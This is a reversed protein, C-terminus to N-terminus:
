VHFLACLVGGIIIIKSMVLHDEKMSLTIKTPIKRKGQRGGLIINFLFFIIMFEWMRDELFLFLKLANEAKYLCIIVMLYDM